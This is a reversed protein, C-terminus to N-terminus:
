LARQQRRVAEPAERGEYWARYRELMLPDPQGAQAVIWAKFAEFAPASSLLPGAQEIGLGLTDLLLRVTM